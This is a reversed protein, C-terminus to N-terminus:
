SQNQCKYGRDKCCDRWLQLIGITDLTMGLGRGIDLGFPHRMLRLDTTLVTVVAMSGCHLVINRLTTLAMGSRRVERQFITQPAVGIGMCGLDDGEALRNGLWTQGAVAILDFLQLRRRALMAFKVAARAVINMGFNGLAGLTVFGVTWLHDSSVAFLTMLSMHRRSNGIIVVSHDILVAGAAVLTSVVQERGAGELMLRQATSEAMGIFVLHNRSALRAMALRMRIGHHGAKSRTSSAM